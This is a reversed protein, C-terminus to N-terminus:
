HARERPRDDPVDDPLGFGHRVLRETAQPSRMFAAYHRALPRTAGRRTIIFGHPMPAHLATPLAAFTGGQGAHLALPLAIIGVDANGSRVFGAAQAISEGLVLRDAIAPWAGAGRLAQEAARGYPAHRPNAIAIRRVRADALSALTWSSVDHRTSWLALRGTAYTQVPTAAFGARALSAPYDLDASFYLDYPAGHRIQANLKGSSAFVLEVQAGPHSQRFARTIDELAHVLVSAGAVLLREDAGSWAPRPLLALCLALWALRNM